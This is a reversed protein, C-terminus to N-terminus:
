PVGSYKMERLAREFAPRLQLFPETVGLQHLTSLDAETFNQYHERLETPMDVFEIHPEVGMSEFLAQATEIWTAAHGRGVNVFLGKEPLDLGERGMKFLASTVRVVDFVSVFDRQQKGDAIDARHSRYLKIKGTEEIQRSGWHLVSAQSGKHEESPGFVNFYRLGFWVPPRQEQRLVWQDFQHKSRGYLNLPRYKDNMELSDSFGLSGDGYVSASSAYLFPVSKQACYSFLEQSAEVNLTRFVEPDTETTSSCAGNHIVAEPPCQFETEWRSLEPLFSDATVFRYGPKDMVRQHTERSVSHPLDCGLVSEVDLGLTQKPDDLIQSLLNHGIFGNVGTLAIWRRM